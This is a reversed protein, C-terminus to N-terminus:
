LRISDYVDNSKLATEAFTVLPKNEEIQLLLQQKEKQEVIWAEARRIPDEIKYSISSELKTRMENFAKIYKEKFTAALKGTYGMALFTFGDQTILYKPYQQKNQHHTYHTHEFNLRNFEESSELNKIDRLINKHEKGFVEAVTLSDTMVRGNEIYVLQLKVDTSLENM